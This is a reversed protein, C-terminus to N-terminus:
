YPPRSPTPTPQPTPGPTPSPAPTPSESTWPSPTHTPKPSHSPRPSRSPRPRPTPPPAATAPPDAADGDPTSTPRDSGRASRMGRVAADVAPPAAVPLEEPMGPAPSLNPADRNEVLVRATGHCGDEWCLTVVHEGATADEPAVVEVRVSGNQDARFTGIQEPDSHMLVMGAQRAPVNTATVVFPEGARVASASLVIMVVRPQGAVWVVTAGVLLAVGVLVALGLRWRVRRRPRPATPAAPELAGPGPPAPQVQPEPLPAPDAPAAQLPVARPPRAPRDVRAVAPAPRVPSVACALAEVLEGCTQWRARPDKALGRLLVTDAAEPLARNRLSPAPPEARLQANIVTRPEGEFPTRDVLLQYAITAFAYRDTADTLEGGVVQELAMYEPTGDRFGAAVGALRPQRLRALGMDAVQPREGSDVLVQAPKLNGHVLGHAHAHDIGAAMGRLLDLAAAPTMTARRFREALTTGDVYAQVLYPVGDHEGHALVGVLNPHRVEILRPAAARIRERSAPESLRHLVKVAVEGLEEDLGRYVTGLTGQGIYDHVVIRGLRTGAEVAM